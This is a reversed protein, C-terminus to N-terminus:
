LQKTQWIVPMLHRICVLQELPLSLIHLSHFFLPYNDHSMVMHGFTLIFNIIFNKNQLIIKVCDCLRCKSGIQEM